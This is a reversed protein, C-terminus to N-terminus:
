VSNARYNKKKTVRLNVFKYKIRLLLLTITKHKNRVQHSGPPPYLSSPQNQYRHDWPPPAHPLANISPQSSPRAPQPTGWQQSNTMGAVTPSASPSPAAQPQPPPPPQPQQSQPPAQPSPYGQVRNNTSGSNYQNTTGPWGSCRFIENQCRSEYRPFLGSFHNLFFTRHKQTYWFDFLLIM